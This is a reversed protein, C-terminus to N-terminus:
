ISVSDYVIINTRVNPHSMFNFEYPNVFAPGDGVQGDCWDHIFTHGWMLDWPSFISYQRGTIWGHDGGGSQRTYGYLEGAVGNNNSLDTQEMYIHEDIIHVQDNGQTEHQMLIRITCGDKDGCWEELDKQVCAYTTTDPNYVEFELPSSGGSGGGVGGEIEDPSHGHINAINPDGEQWAVNYAVVFGVGLLFVFVASLLWLDKKQINLNINIGKKM